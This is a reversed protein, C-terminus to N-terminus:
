ADRKAASAACMVTVHEKKGIIEAIVRKGGRGRSDEREYRIKSM